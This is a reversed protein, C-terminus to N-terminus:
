KSLPRNRFWLSGHQAGMSTVLKLLTHHKANSRRAHVGITGVTVRWRGSPAVKGRQSSMGYGPEHDERGAGHARLTANAAALLKSGHAECEVRVRDSYRIERLARRNVEIRV